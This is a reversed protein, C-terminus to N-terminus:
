VGAGVGFIITKPPLLHVDPSPITMTHMVEPITGCLCQSVMGPVVWDLTKSQTALERFVEGVHYLGHSSKELIKIAIISPKVIFGLMYQQNARFLGVMQETNLQNGTM